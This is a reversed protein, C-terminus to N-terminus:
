FCREVSHHFAYAIDQVVYAHSSLTVSSRVSKAIAFAARVKSGQAALFFLSRPLTYFM